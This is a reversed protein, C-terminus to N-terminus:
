NYKLMWASPDFKKQAWRLAEEPDDTACNVRLGVKTLQAGQIVVSRYNTTEIRNVMRNVNSQNAFAGVIIVCEQEVDEPASIQLEKFKPLYNPGPELSIRDVRATIEASDHSIPDAPNINIRKLPKMTLESTQNDHVQLPLAADRNLFYLLSILTLLVAAAGIIFGWKRDKERSAIVKAHEPRESVTEKIDAIAEQEARSLAEPLMMKQFGFFRNLSIYEPDPKFFLNGWFDQNISGIGPFNLIGTNSLENRLDLMFARVLNSAEEQDVDTIIKVVKILVPDLEQVNNPIFYIEERPPAIISLETDIVASRYQLRLTGIGKLLVEKNESLVKPIYLNLTQSM